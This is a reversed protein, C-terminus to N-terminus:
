NFLIQAKKYADQLLKKLATHRKLIFKNAIM